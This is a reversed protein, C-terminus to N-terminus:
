EPPEDKHMSLCDVANMSHIKCLEYDPQKKSPSAARDRLESVLGWVGLILMGTVIFGRVNDLAIPDIYM